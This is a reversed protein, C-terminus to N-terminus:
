NKNKNEDQRAKIEKIICDEGASPTTDCATCEGCNSRRGTIKKKKIFYRYILYLIILSIIVYVIIEQWM